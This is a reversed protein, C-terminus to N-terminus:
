CRGRNRCRSRTRTVILLLQTKFVKVVIVATPRVTDGNGREAAKIMEKLWQILINWFHVSTDRNWYCSVKHRNNEKEELDIAPLRRPLRRHNNTRFRHVHKIERSTFSGVLAGVTHRHITDLEGTRLNIARFRNSEAFVQHVLDMLTMHGYRRGVETLITDQAESQLQRNGSSM